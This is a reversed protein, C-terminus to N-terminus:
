VLARWCRSLATSRCRITPWSPPPWNSCCGPRSWGPSSFDSGLRQPAEPPWHRRAATLGPLLGLTMPFGLLPLLLLHLGPPAGHGEAGSALKGGLDGGLAEVFFQGRTAIGISILWPSVLGLCVLLGVPWLLPKAWRLDREWAFLAALALGAILPTLPGKILVGAAIAGWFGLASWRGRREGPRFRLASLAWLAGAVTASLAADTKAIMGETSLLVSSALLCAGLGASDRGLLRAGALFTFLVTLMAGLLSPLRYAWIARAEPSSFATVSASQLWYIGAPKKNRAEDQYRIRVFDGSELMQLSAQAFRSEDRDLPPLSFLGPLASLAALAVAFAPARWATRSARQSLTRMLQTEVGILM